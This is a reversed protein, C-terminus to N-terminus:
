LNLSILSEASRLLNLLSSLNSIKNYSLDIHQVHNAFELFSDCILNLENDDLRYNFNNTDNGRYKLIYPTDEELAQLVSKSEPHNRRKCLMSYNKVVSM